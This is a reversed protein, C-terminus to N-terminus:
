VDGRVKDALKSLNNHTLFENSSFRGQIPKILAWATRHGQGGNSSHNYDFPMGGVFFPGPNGEPTSTDFGFGVLEPVRWSKYVSNSRQYPSTGQATVGLSIRGTSWDFGFAIVHDLISVPGLTDTVVLLPSCDLKRTAIQTTGDWFEIVLWHRVAYVLYSKNGDAITGSGFLVREYPGASGPRWSAHDKAVFSAM